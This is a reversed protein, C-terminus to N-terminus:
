LPKGGPQSAAVIDGAAPSWKVVIASDNGLGHQDRRFDYTGNIGAYDQINAIYARIQDATADVGLKNYAAVVIATPDWSYGSMSTPVVGANKFGTVFADYARQMARDKPPVGQWPFGDFYLDRPLFASFQALLPKSLNASSTFVPVDVIGADKLGRLATGFAPGSAHIFIAKPNAAKLKAVEAAVTLASPAFRQEDVVQVAPYPQLVEELAKLGAQGSADTVSLTAVRDYGKDNLFRALAADTAPLSRASAFVFSGKQPALAPSLCYEVPGTTRVVPEVAACSASNSPGIFVPVHQAILTNVIQLDVQPSSQDDYIQFHVPRGRVGGAKNIVTEYIQIANKEDLGVFAASGTLPLIVNITFQDEAFAAPAMFALTIGFGIPALRTRVLATFTM